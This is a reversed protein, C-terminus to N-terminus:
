YFHVNEGFIKDFRSINPRSPPISILYQFKTNTKERPFFDIRLKLVVKWYRGTFKEDIERFMETFIAFNWWNWPFIMLIVCINCSFSGNQRFFKNKTTKVSFIVKPILFYLLFKIYHVILYQDICIWKKAFTYFISM